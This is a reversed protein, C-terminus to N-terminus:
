KEHKPLRGRAADAEWPSNEVNPGDPYSQPGKAIGAQPKGGKVGAPMDPAAQDLLDNGAAPQDQSAAEGMTKHTPDGDHNENSGHAPGRGISTNSSM